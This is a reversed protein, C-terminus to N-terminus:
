RPLLGLNVQNAIYPSGHSESASPPHAICFGWRYLFVCGCWACTGYWATFTTKLNGLRFMFYHMLLTIRNIRNRSLMVFIQTNHLYTSAQFCFGETPTPRPSRAAISAPVIRNERNRFLSKALHTKYARSCRSRLHSPRKL